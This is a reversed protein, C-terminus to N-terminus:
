LQVKFITWCFLSVSNFFAFDSTFLTLSFFPIKEDAKCAQFKQLKFILYKM